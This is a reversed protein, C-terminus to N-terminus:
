LCPSPRAVSASPDLVARWALLADRTAAVDHVRILDTHQMALAISVGVTAFVREDVPRGLIKQIFRKRSHGICVPRGLARFDGVHSLIELNHWATKGFGVGPDLMVRARPIGSQELDGLRGELFRCIDKVVDEYQPNIQMTQPTGQIHMCVIGAGTEACVRPMDRDFTLGSIDNVISAGALMSQRAVEAKTTDISIPVNTRAALASIVPIVRRLEEDLTVPEAGPRSSEGGIDIFDAGQEILVLAREVALAPDFFQGSDSFSDPTANVIGMLRPIDGLSFQRGLFEWARLHAHPNGAAQTPVIM